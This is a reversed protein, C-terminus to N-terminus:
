LGIHLALRHVRNFTNFVGFDTYAYDAGLRLGGLEQRLGAGLSIGQEDTPFTYGARLSVTNMFTYETGLKIQEPYDRPHEADVAVVLSHLDQNMTTLDLVDMSIGIRLALPLQFNEQEYRIETAFNRATVAFNLSELGTRYLMGFDYALVGITNGSTVFGGDSRGLNSEGLDQYNYKVHGGVSFRDTIEKAYGVGVSLATPSFVGTDVYGDPHGPDRVTGLFEGYDVALMTFGIVGFRGGYPRLALAARNYSIDSIWEVRAVSLDLLGDLRAMGAPNYFMSVSSSELATAADSMAAFRPDTSVSLFKMGTQALKTTPFGEDEDVQGAAPTSGIALIVALCLLYRLNMAKTSKPDIRIMCGAEASSSSSGIPASASGM